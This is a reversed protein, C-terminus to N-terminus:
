KDDDKRNAYIVWLVIAVPIVITLILNEVYEIEQRRRYLYTSLETCGVALAVFAALVLATKVLWNM